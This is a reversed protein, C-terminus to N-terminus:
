LLYCLSVVNNIKDIIFEDNINANMIYKMLHKIKINKQKRLIHTPIDINENKEIFIDNMTEIKKYIKSITVYSIGFKEALTKKDINEIKNLQCAFAICAVAIAITTHVSAINQKKLNENIVEAIKLTKDDLHCQKGFRKIFHETTSIGVETNENTKMLRIFTKIGKNLSKVKIEAMKAIEKTTRPTGNRKCAMFICAGIFSKRHEGRTIISKGKNKGFIHKCSNIMRFLIKADQEINQPINGKSCYTSIKKYVNLLSRESYPIAYWTNLMKIKCYYPANITTGTSSQQLFLNMPLPLKKEKKFDNEITIVYDNLVIGCKTCITSGNKDDNKLFDNTNCKPCIKNKKKTFDVKQEYYELYDTYDDDYM